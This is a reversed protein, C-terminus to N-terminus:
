KGREGVLYDELWRDLDQRRYIVRGGIKAFAPGDARKPALRLKNLTSMSLGLYDAAEATNLYKEQPKTGSTTKSM